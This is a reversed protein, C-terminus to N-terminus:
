ADLLADEIEADTRARKADKVRRKEARIKEEPDEANRIRFETRLAYGLGGFGFLAFLLWQLAYSLHPGEDEEPQAAALPRDAPAPTETALLGYAGTYMDGGLTAALAPLEITAIQGAPASRGALEPESAKLRAVVTVEGSPAVPIADPYDQEDGSPVWGRDVIFVSDDALQLPVLVEFGPNGGYPRNRVLTQQDVLYTGTMEVPVWKDDADFGDLTPLVSALPVAERSYNESLRNVEVRAEALRAFQWQSLFWCGIAFVIAMALYGFYRRTIAFRWNKV